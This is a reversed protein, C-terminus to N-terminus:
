RVMIIKGNKITIPKDVFATGATEVIFPEVFATGDDNVTVLALGIRIGDVSVDRSLYKKKM